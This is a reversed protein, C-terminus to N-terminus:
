GNVVEKEPELWGKVVGYAHFYETTKRLDYNRRLVQSVFSNHMGIVGEIEAPLFGNDYAALVFVHRARASRGRAYKSFFQSVDISFDICIVGVLQKLYGKRLSMESM